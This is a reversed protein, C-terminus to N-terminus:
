VLSTGSVAVLTLVCGALLVGWAAVTPGVRVARRLVGKSAAFRSLLDRGSVTALGVLSLVAAMGIGFAGVLLLALATRGSFIGTLLVLFAAPSPVLGGSAGLLMLGPRRGDEPGHHHHHHHHHEHSRHRRRVLLIGVAVVMGAAVVQLIEAVPGIDVADTASLAVWVLGVAIVSVTHMVAVATGLVLADRRRGHAGVLYAAALSKGHGPACAHAAGAAFAVLISVPAFGPADVAALIRDGLPGLPAAALTM